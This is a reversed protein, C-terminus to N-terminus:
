CSADELTEELARYLYQSLLNTYHFPRQTVSRRYSRASVAVRLQNSVVASLQIGIAVLKLEMSNM